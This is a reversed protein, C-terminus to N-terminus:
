ELFVQIVDNGSKYDVLPQTLDLKNGMAAEIM